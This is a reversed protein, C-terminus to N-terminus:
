VPSSDTGPAIHADRHSSPWTPLPSSTSGETTNPLRFVQGTARAPGLSSGSASHSAKRCLPTPSLGYFRCATSSTSDLLADTFQAVAVNTTATAIVLQDPQALRAAIVAWVVTQGTEYGAQIAMVAHNETGMRVARPHDPRLQLRRGGLTVPMDDPPPSSQARTPRSRGGHVQDLIDNAHMVANPDLTSFLNKSALIEFVPDTGTAACTLRVCVRVHASSDGVLNGNYLIANRLQNRAPTPSSSSKYSKTTSITGNAM